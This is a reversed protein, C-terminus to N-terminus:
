QATFEATELLKAQCSFSWIAVVWHGALKVPANVGTAIFQAWGNAGRPQKRRRMPRYDDARAVRCRRVRLGRQRLQALGVPIREVATHAAVSICGLRRLVQRLRKERLQQLLSSDGLGVRLPPTKASIQQPGELIEQAGLM